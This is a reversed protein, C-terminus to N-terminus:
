LGPGQWTACIVMGYKIIACPDRCPHFHGRLHRWFSRPDRNFQQTAARLQDLLWARKRARVYSHYKRELERVQASHGERRALRRYERKLRLCENDYFPLNPARSAARRVRSRSQLGSAHAAGVVTNILSTIATDVNGQLAQGSCDHLDGLKDELGAVYAGRVADTWRIAHLPTGIEGVNGRSSTPIALTIHM